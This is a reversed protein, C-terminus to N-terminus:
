LAKGCPSSNLFSLCAEHSYLDTNKLSCVTDPFNTSPKKTFVCSYETVAQQLNLWPMIKSLLESFFWLNWVQVFPFSIEKGTPRQHFPPCESGEHVILLWYHMHISVAGKMKSSIYNGIKITVNLMARSMHNDWSCTRQVNLFCGGRDDWLFVM